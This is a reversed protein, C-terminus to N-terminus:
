LEVTNLAVLDTAKAKKAPLQGCAALHQKEGCGKLVCHPLKGLTDDGIGVDYSQLSLLLGQVGDLLIVYEASVFLAPKICQTVDVTCDCNSLGHDEAM